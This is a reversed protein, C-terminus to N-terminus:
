IMDNQQRHTASERERKGGSVREKERGTHAAVTVAQVNVFDCIANASFIKRACLNYSM